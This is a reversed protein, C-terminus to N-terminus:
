EFHQTESKWQKRLKFPTRTRGRWSPPDGADWYRMRHPQTPDVYWGSPRDEDSYHRPDLAREHGNGPGLPLEEAPLQRARLDFYLLAIALATFSLTLIQLVVGLLFTVATTADPLALGLLFWPATTIVSTCIFFVLVHLLNGKTLDWSGRLADLWGRREIAAVQAVVALRLFLYVGPLVLLLFGGGIALGSMITAAAVVPLVALGRRAVPALQPERGEELDAVAHVHLASVLPDVLVWEILTLLISTGVALGGRNFSDADTVVLVILQYPIVVGAALTPFLLPYRWYLQFTEGILRPASRPSRASADSM